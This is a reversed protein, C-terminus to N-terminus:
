KKTEGYLGVKKWSEDTLVLDELRLQCIEHWPTGRWALQGSHASWAITKQGLM